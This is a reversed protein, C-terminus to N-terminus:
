VRVGLARRIAEVEEDSLNIKSQGREVPKAYIRTENRGNISCFIVGSGEEDLLAVAFSLRGGMDEFADFRVIGVRQITRALGDRISGLEMEVFRMDQTDAPVPSGARQRM